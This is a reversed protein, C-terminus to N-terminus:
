ADRVAIGEEGLDANIRAPHDVQGEIGQRDRRCVVWPLGPDLDVVVVEGLRDIARGESRRYPHTGGRRVGVTRAVVVQHFLEEAVVNPDDGTRVRSVQHPRVRAIGRGAGRDLGVPARDVGTRPRGYPRSGVLHACPTEAIGAGALPRVALLRGVARAGA